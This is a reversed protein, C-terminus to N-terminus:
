SRLGGEGARATGVGMRANWAGGMRGMVDCWSCLPGGMQSDYQTHFTKSPLPYAEHEEHDESNDFTAYINQLTPDSTEVM